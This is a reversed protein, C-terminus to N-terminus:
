MWNVVCAIGTALGGFLAYYLQPLTPILLLVGDEPEVGLSHFLNAAQTSRRALEEYSISVPPPGPAGAAVYHIATKAPDLSWGRRVWENLDWSWVREELPVREIEEIDRLTRIPPTAATDMAAITPAVDRRGSRRDDNAIIPANVM